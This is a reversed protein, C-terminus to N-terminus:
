VRKKGGRERRIASRGDVQIASGGALCWREDTCGEWEPCGLPTGRALRAQRVGDTKGGKGDKFQAWTGTPGLNRGELTGKRGRDYRDVERGSGRGEPRLRRGLGRSTGPPPMTNKKMGDWTHGGRRGQTGRQRKADESTQNM